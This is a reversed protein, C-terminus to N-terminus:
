RLYRMFLCICPCTSQPLRPQAALSLSICMVNLREHIVLYLSICMIVYNQKIIGICPFTEPCDSVPFHVSGRNNKWFYGLATLYVNRWTVPYLFICNAQDQLSLWICPFVSQAFCIINIPMSKEYYMLACM